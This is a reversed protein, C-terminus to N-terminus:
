RQENREDFESRAKAMGSFSGAYFVVVGAAVTAASWVLSGDLVAPLSAVAIAAAGVTQGFMLARHLEAKIM